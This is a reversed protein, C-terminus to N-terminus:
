ICVILRLLQVELDGPEFYSGPEGCPTHEGDCQIYGFQMTTTDPNVSYATLIIPASAKAKRYDECTYGGYESESNCNTGMDEWTNSTTDYYQLVFGYQKPINERIADCIADAEPPTGDDVFAEAIKDMYTEGTSDEAYRLMTATDKSLIYTQEFEQYYGRPVSVFIFLGYLLTITLIFAVFSDFTFAFAKM